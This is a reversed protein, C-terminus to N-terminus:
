LNNKLTIYKAKYKKYKEYYDIKYNGGSKKTTSHPLPHLTKPQVIPSSKPSKPSSLQKDITTKTSSPAVTSSKQIKFNIIHADIKKGVTKAIKKRLEQKENQTVAAVIKDPIKNYVTHVINQNLKTIEILINKTLELSEAHKIYWTRIIIKIWQL